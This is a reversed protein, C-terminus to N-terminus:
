ADLSNVSDPSRSWCGCPHQFYGRQQRYVYETVGETFDPPDVLRRVCGNKEAEHPTKDGTGCYCRHDHM